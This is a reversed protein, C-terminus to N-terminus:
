RFFRDVLQKADLITDAMSLYRWSGYRGCCYIDKERLGQIIEQTSKKYNKDFLVYGYRIDNVDSAIIKDKRNLIKSKILGEIIRRNINKSLPQSPSYSVEAYLSSAASPANHLSFNYYFGTRFFCYDKGPFYVWHKDSINNRDIGLNLNFISAYRLQKLNHEIGSSLHPCLRLIEPLPLTFILKDFAQVNGNQFYVKKNRIDLKVAEHCTDVKKIKASFARALEQIGGKQPYWFRSNYGVDNKSDIRSGAILESLSPIPVFGQTWEYTLKAPSVTWFKRNYPVMFHRAIGKGLKHNIWDLFNLDRKAMLKKGESKRIFGAICEKVVSAPLGYLHFQFPYRVYRHFSYVWANRRHSTLNGSLLKKVLSFTYDDRFHLLHGGYDFTFGTLFKANNKYHYPMELPTFGNIKKSRCLGGAETEKEFIQYERGIASLHWAASLGSLGAGLIVIKPKRSM